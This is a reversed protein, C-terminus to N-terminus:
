TNRELCCLQIFSPKLLHVLQFGLYSYTEMKAWCRIDASLQYLQLFAPPVPVSTPLLPLAIMLHLEKSDRGGKGKRIKGELEVEKSWGQGAPHHCDQWIQHAEAQVVDLGAEVFSEVPLTILITLVFSPSLTFNTCSADYLWPFSFFNHLSNLLMM